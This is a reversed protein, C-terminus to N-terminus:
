LCGQGLISFHSSLTLAIPPYHSSLLCHQVSPLRTYENWGHFCSMGLSPVSGYLTFMSYKSEGSLLLSLPIVLHKFSMQACTWFYLFPLLSSLTSAFDPIRTGSHFCSALCHGLHAYQGMFMFMYNSEESLQADVTWWTQIANQFAKELFLSLIFPLLPNLFPNLFVHLVRELRHFCCHM